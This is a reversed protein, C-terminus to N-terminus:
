FIRVISSCPPVQTVGLGPGEVEFTLFFTADGSSLSLALILENSGSFSSIASWSDVLSVVVGFKVLGFFGM